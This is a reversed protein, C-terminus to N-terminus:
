KDVEVTFGAVAMRNMKFPMKMDGGKKEWEKMDKEIAKNIRNRDAKTKYVIYSFWVEEGAKPKVLKAFTLSGYQAKKDDDIRCEKYDIAGRKMWMDKGEKAMKIYAKRNKKPVMLVFGDVYAMSKKNPVM